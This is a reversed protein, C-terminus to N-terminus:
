VQECSWWPAAIDFVVEPNDPRQNGAACPLSRDRGSPPDRSTRLHLSLSALEKEELAKTPMFSDTVLFLAIFLLSLSFYVTHFTFRLPRLHRIRCCSRFSWSLSAMTTM